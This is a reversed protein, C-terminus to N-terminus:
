FIVWTWSKFPSSLFVGLFLMLNALNLYSPLYIPLCLVLLLCALVCSTFRDTTKLLSAKSVTPHWCVAGYCMWAENCLARFCSFVSQNRGFHWNSRCAEPVAWKRRELRPDEEFGRLYNLGPISPKDNFATEAGQGGRGKIRERTKRPRPYASVM